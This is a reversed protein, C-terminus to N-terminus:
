RLFVKPLRRGLGCTIEYPITQAGKAWEEVTIREDGWTGLLVAEDGVQVPLAGADVVCQDMSINGVIPVRTGHLLVHGRNSLARPLGDAYGVPLVALRAPASTQYKWGYGVHTGAPVDRVQAVRASVSLAPELQFPVPKDPAPAIGYLMLGPRVLDWHARPHYLTAASNAAHRLTGAPLGAGVVGDEFRSLQWETPGVDADEACALHTFFGRLEVGPLELARRVLAPADEPPAGVRTMGTDVKLHVKAVTGMSTAVRSAIDLAEFSSVTIQLDNAIATEFAEAQILSLLLLPNHTGAQRLRIGESVTAVAVWDAGASIATQAVALSGHGYGDAKVVALLHTHPPLWARLARTNAAIARLDVTVWAGRLTALSSDGEGPLQTRPGTHAPTHYM